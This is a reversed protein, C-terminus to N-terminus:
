SEEGEVPLIHGGEVCHSSVCRGVPTAGLAANVARWIVANRHVPDPPLYAGLERIYEYVADFAPQRPDPQVPLASNLEEDSPPEPQGEDPKVMTHPYGPCPIANGASDTHLAACTLKISWEPPQPPSDADALPGRRRNPCTDWHMGSWSWRGCAGDETLCDSPNRHCRACQQEGHASCKAGAEPFCPGDHEGCTRAPSGDGTAVVTHSVVGAAKLKDLSDSPEPPRHPTAGAASDNWDYRSGPGDAGLKSAHWHGYKGKAHGARFACRYTERHETVIRATCPPLDAHVRAIHADLQRSPQLEDCHPCEEDVDFASM